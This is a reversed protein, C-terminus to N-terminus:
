ETDVPRFKKMDRKERTVRARQEKGGLGPGDAVDSSLKASRQLIM